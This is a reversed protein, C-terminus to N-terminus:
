RLGNRIASERPVSDGSGRRARCRRWLELYNPEGPPLLIGLNQPPPISGIGSGILNGGPSAPTPLDSEHYVGVLGYDAPSRQQVSEMVVLPFAPGGPFAWWECTVFNGDFPHQFRIVSQNASLVIGTQTQVSSLPSIWVNGTPSGSIILCYRDPNEQAIRTASTNGLTFTTVAPANFTQFADRPRTDDMGM